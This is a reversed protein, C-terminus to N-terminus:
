PHDFSTRGILIDKFGQGMQVHLPHTLYAQLMDPSDITVSVMIDANSDRDVCNRYVKPDNLFPLADNLEAYVSRIKEEAADLDTGPAFTLLVYHIM